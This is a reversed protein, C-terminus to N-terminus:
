RVGLLLSYKSRQLTLLSVKEHLAATLHLKYAVLKATFKSMAYNKSHLQKNHIKENLCVNEYRSDRKRQRPQNALCYVSCLTTRTMDLM